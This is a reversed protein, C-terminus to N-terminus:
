YFDNLGTEFCSMRGSLGNDNQREGVVDKTKANCTTTSKIFTFIRCGATTACFEKCEAGNIVFKRALVCSSGGNTCAQSIAHKQCALESVYLLEDPYVM